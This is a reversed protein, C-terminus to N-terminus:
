HGTSLHLIGLVTRKEPKEDNDNIFAFSNEGLVTLGEIKDAFQYSLDSLNLIQEPTLTPSDLRVQSLYHQADDGKKSNQEILFLNSTFGSFAIDGIKEVGKINLPYFFEQSVKETQIDFELIRVLKKEAKKKIAKQLSAYIKGKSFSIGEFGRGNKEGSYAEPLAEILVDPGYSNSLAQFEAKPLANFPIYRKLMRGSKNFKMLSPINEECMWINGQDDMTIGETDASLTTLASGKPNTLRTEGIVQVTKMQSNTELKLWKIQTPRSGNEQPGQDAHTLFDLEQNKNNKGVFYLGSFGGTYRSDQFEYYRIDHAEARSSHSILYGLLCFIISLNLLSLKM